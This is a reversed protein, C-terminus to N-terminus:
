VDNEIEITNFDSMFSTVFPEDKCNQINFFIDKDGLVILTKAARSIATYALKLRNTGWSLSSHISSSIFVVVDKQSGQYKHVTNCYNLTFCDKIKNLPIEEINIERPDDDYHIYAVKNRGKFKIKGADGNVRIDDGDYKNETRMVFDEDKFFGHKYTRDPNYVDNQLLKNMEFSGGPKNNEPTIFAINNRGYTNVLKTCTDILKKENKKSENGFSHDIFITSKNDFDKMSLERKNINVICDKLKGADQRKIEDLYCIDFLESNIICEFPRGKGVPPLQKIDGCLVLDCSFYKCWKLLKRFMFIDVMSTEDVIIKNIYQPYSENLSPKNTQNISSGLRRTVETLDDDSDDHEHYDYEYQEQGNTRSDLKSVIKPFTNLLCKHLTGCISKIKINACKDVLGKYAKGTPAMLSIVYEPRIKNQQSEINFWEIIAETITSKGTGPPGTIICLKDTISRKIADIQEDNLKFSNTQTSKKLEFTRIFTSFQNDDIERSEDYYLEMLQDGVNKEIDVFEAIGYVHKMTKHEVLISDLIKCYKGYSAFINNEECFKRLLMIWGQKYCRDSYMKYMNNSNPHSKIKYFSGNNESLAFIAWKRILVDDSVKINLITAIRFAQNFNIVSHEIQILEYPNEILNKIFYRSHKEFQLTDILKDFTKFTIKTQKFDKSQFDKFWEIIHLITDVITNKETFKYYQNKKMENREMTFHHSDNVISTTQYQSDKKIITEIVEMYKDAIKSAREENQKNKEIKLNLKRLDRCGNVTQSIQHEAM